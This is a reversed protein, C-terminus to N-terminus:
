EQQMHPFEKVREGDWHVSLKFLDGHKLAEPPLKIEWNGYNNIKEMRYSAKEKWNNFIGIIYIETANPAWERFVWGNKDKHLGYYYHGLAFDVLSQNGKLEKEKLLCKRIRKEIIYIFPELWPDITYFKGAAM